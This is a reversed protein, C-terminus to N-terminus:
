PERILWLVLELYLSAGVGGLLMLLVLGALRCAGGLPM